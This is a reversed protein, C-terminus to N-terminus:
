MTDIGVYVALVVGSYNIGAVITSIGLPQVAIFGVYTRRDIKNVRGLLGPMCEIIYHEFNLFLLSISLDPM